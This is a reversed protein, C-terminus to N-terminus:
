SIFDETFKRHNDTLCRECICEGNFEFYIEDTIKYDCECCTPLQAMAKEQERCYNDYDRVPDDTYSMFM